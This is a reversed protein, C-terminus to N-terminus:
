APSAPKVGVFVDRGYQDVVSHAQFGVAELLRVWDARSFLGVTHTDFAFQVPGEGERLMFAYHVLSTTDGPDPDYEWELMRLSRGEFDAEDCESRATFTEVVHDPVLVAAGGPRCHVYATEMAARLDAETTMYDIADHIFVADFLRGLRAARMDGVQHECEPNLRQSVELMHPSLDVLTLDYHAKLHSANNGGGSGLELVTRAPPHCYQQLLAHVFAAEDAYDEPQSVWLWWPALDTYMRM